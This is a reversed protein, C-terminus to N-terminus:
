IINVEPELKIKYQDYVEKQMEKTFDLIEKATAGYSEVSLAQGSSTGVNGIRKGKWGLNDLLRGAPIKVYDKHTLNPDDLKPYSLNDVPYCQLDPDAKKIQEYKQKTIVPNKFFSGATGVKKPDSLKKRRINMVAQAVDRVSYPPKAISDLESQLTVNKAYSKGTEFYGLNLESNKLLRLTVTTILYRNKQKKFISSRYEFKCDSKKFTVKSLKETDIANLSEFVDEFNQGYAAINQVPAAGVTGPIYVLNEIGGLDKEVSWMVLEHWNEGSGIEVILENNNERIIKKGKIEVKVVLGDFDKTFLINAGGGLFLIKKYKLDKNSLLELIEEESSVEAFYKANVDIRFTNHEKLSYNKHIKM